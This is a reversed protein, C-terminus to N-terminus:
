NRLHRLNGAFRRLGDPIAEAFARVWYERPLSAPLADKPEDINGRKDILLNGNVRGIRGIPWGSAAPRRLDLLYRFQM